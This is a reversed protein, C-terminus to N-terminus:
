PIEPRFNFRAPIIQPYLALATAVGALALLVEMFAALHVGSDSGTGTIYNLRKVPGYLGLTPISTIFTLLYCAGAVFATKRLATVPPRQPGRTALTSTM